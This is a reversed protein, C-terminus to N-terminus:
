QDAPGTMSAFEHRRVDAAFRPVGARASQGLLLGLDFTMSAVLPGYGVVCAEPFAHKMASVRRGAGDPGVTPLEALNRRLEDLVDDSWHPQFAGQEVIRLITDNLTAGFLVCTDLFAPFRSM